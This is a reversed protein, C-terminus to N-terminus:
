LSPSLPDSCVADMPGRKAQRFSPTINKACVKNPYLRSLTGRTSVLLPM